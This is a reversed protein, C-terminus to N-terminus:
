VCLISFNAKPFLIMKSLKIINNLLRMRFSLKWRLKVANWPSKQKYDLFLNKYNHSCEIHWPKIPATYHVVNPLETVYKHAESWKSRHLFLNDVPQRMLEQYNYKYDLFVVQNELLSNLADQDPYLCREPNQYIYEVLQEKLNHQRWYDLNMLLVGSNFYTSYMEIRNHLRVDDGNQDEVVACACKSIDTNWLDTIKKTVIIDCDLYLAKESDLLDPILFRYYIAESFRESVKLGDLISSDINVINIKQNYTAALQEFRSITVKDLGKTLIYVNCEEEKNNEFISTVCVGCPMAYNEDTCLVINM